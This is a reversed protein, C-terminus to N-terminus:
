IVWVGFEAFVWFGAFGCASDWGFGRFCQAILGSVLAGFRSCVVFDAWAVAGSVWSECLEGIFGVWGLDVCVVLSWVM